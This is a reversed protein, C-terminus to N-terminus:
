SSSSRRRRTWPKRFAQAPIVRGLSALTASCSCRPKTATPTYRLMPQFAPAQCSTPQHCSSRLGAIPSGVSADDGPAVYGGAVMAAHAIVLSCHQGLVIDELGELFHDVGLEAEVEDGEAEDVVDLDLFLFDE